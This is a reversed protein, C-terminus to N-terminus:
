ALSEVHKQTASSSLSVEKLPILKTNRTLRLPVGRWVVERSFFAYVWVVALLLDKFPTVWAHRWLLTRGRTVRTLRKDGITKIVWAALFVLLSSPSFFSFACALAALAVPNFAIEGYFSVWSVVARMKAWRAHRQLFRRLTTSQNVNDIPTTSLVVKRGAQLYHQGALFDEALYNKIADFGGLADFESRRFLMSKGIVCTVKAVSLALCTAPAIFASLQINEMASAVTREDMGVVISSLLSANQGELEAVISRLYDPRFRTNADTQLILDYRAEAVGASLNCVKPNLSYNPDALVVRTTIDPYQLAVRKAVALGADDADTAALVVEFPAPYAQQYVSYLNEELEDEEGKIPKVLSVPPYVDLVYAQRALRSVRLFRRVKQMGWLYAVLSSVSLLTMIQGLIHM